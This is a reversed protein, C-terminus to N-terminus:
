KRSNECPNTHVTRIGKAIRETKDGKALTMARIDAHYHVADLRIEVYVGLGNLVVKIATFGSLAAYGGWAVLGVLCLNYAADVVAFRRSCRNTNQYFIM